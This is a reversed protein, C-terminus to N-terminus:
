NHVWEHNKAALKEKRADKERHAKRKQSHTAAVDRRDSYFTQRRVNDTWCHELILHLKVAPLM